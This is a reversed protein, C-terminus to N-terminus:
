GVDKWAPMTKMYTKAAERAAEESISNWEGCASCRGSWKGHAAGCSQCVFIEATKAV